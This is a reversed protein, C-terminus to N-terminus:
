CFFPLSLFVFEFLWVLPLPGATVSWSTEFIAGDYFFPLGHGDDVFRDIGEIQRPVDTNYLRCDSLSNYTEM